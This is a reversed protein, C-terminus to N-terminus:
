TQQTYWCRGTRSRCRVGDMMLQPLIAIVVIPCDGLCCLAPVPIAHPQVVSFSPLACARAQYYSHLAFAATPDLAAM